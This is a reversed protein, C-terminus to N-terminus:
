LMHVFINAIAQRMNDKLNDLTRPRNTYVINIELLGMPFLGLLGFRVVMSGLAYLRGFLHEPFYQRLITILVRSTCVYISHCRGAPIM